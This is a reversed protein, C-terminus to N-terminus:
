GEAEYEGAAQDDEDLYDSAAEFWECFNEFKSIGCLLDYANFEPNRKIGEAAMYILRAEFVGVAAEIGEPSCQMMEGAEGFNRTNIAHVVARTLMEHSFDGIVGNEDMRVDVKGEERAIEDLGMSNVIFINLAKTRAAEFEAPTVNFIEAYNKNFKRMVAGFLLTIEDLQEDTIGLRETLDNM